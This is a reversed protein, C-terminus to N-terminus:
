FSAEYWFWNETIRTSSGHNDTGDTWTMHDGNVEMTTHEAYAASFLKHTDDAAYYFGKYTSSPALGFGGTMFEVMGEDPYATTKWAGYRGTRESGALQEEAYSKLSDDALSVYTRILTEKFAAGLLLLALVVATIILASKKKVM